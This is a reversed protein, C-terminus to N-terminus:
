SVNRYTLTNLPLDGFLLQERDFLLTLADGLSSLGDSGFQQLLVLLFRKLLGSLLCQMM